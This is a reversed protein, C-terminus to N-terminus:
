GCLNTLCVTRGRATIREFNGASNEVGTMARLTESARQLFQQVQEKQEALPKDTAISQAAQRVQMVQEGLNPYDKQQLMAIWESAASFADRAARARETPQANAQMRESSQRLQTRPQDMEGAGGQKTTAVATLAAELKKIGEAAYEGDADTAPSTQSAFQVFEKVAEPTKTGQASSPSQQSPPAKQSSEAQQAAPTPTLPGPASHAEASELPRPKESEQVSTQPAQASAQPQREPASVTAGAGPSPADETSPSAQPVTEAIQPIQPAATPPTTPAPTTAAPGPPVSDPLAKPGRNYQLIAWIAAVAIFVLLVWPWVSRKKRQVNIEAM